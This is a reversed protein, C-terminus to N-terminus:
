HARSLELDIERQKRVGAHIVNLAPRPLTGDRVEGVLITEIQELPVPAAGREPHRMNSIRNAILEIQEPHLDPNPVGNRTWGDAVRNAQRYPSLNHIAEAYVDPPGSRGLGAAIHPNLLGVDVRASHMDRNMTHLRMEEVWAPVPVANGDADRLPNNRWERVKNIFERRSVAFESIDHVILPAGPRLDSVPARRARGGMAETLVGVRESHLWQRQLYAAVDDANASPGAKGERVEQVVQRFQSEMWPTPAARAAGNFRDHRAPRKTTEFRETRQQTTSKFFDPTAHRDMAHPVHFFNKVAGWGPISRATIGVLGGGFTRGCAQSSGESCSSYARAVGDRVAGVIAKGTAVPDMWHKVVAVGLAMSTEKPHTVAHWASTAENEVRTQAGEQVGNRFALASV